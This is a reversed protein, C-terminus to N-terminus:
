PQAKAKERRMREDFQMRRAESANLPRDPLNGRTNQPTLKIPQGDDYYWKGDTDQYGGYAEAMLRYADSEQLPLNPNRDPDEALFAAFGDNTRQGWRGDASEEKLMNIRVLADQLMNLRGQDDKLKSVFYRPDTEPIAEGGKKKEGGGSLAMAGGIGGLVVAGVGATAKLAGRESNVFDKVGYYADRMKAGKQRKMAQEELVRNLNDMARAERADAEAWLADRNDRMVFRSRARTNAAKADRLEKRAALEEASQGGEIRYAKGAKRKNPKLANRDPPLVEVGPAIRVKGYGPPKPTGKGGGFGMQAPPLRNGPPKVGGRTAARVGAGAIGGTIAGGLAQAARERADVVGDGNTDRAFTGGAIAGGATGYGTASGNKVLPKPAGPPKVTPPSAKVGAWDAPPPLMGQNQNFRPAYNDWRQFQEPRAGKNVVAFEGNGPSKLLMKGSPLNAEIMSGLSNLDVGDVLALVHPGPTSNVLGVFREGIQRQVDAWEKPNQEAWDPARPPDNALSMGREQARLSAKQFDMAGTLDDAVNSPWAPSMVVADRDKFVDATVDYQRGDQTTVKAVSRSQPVSSVSASARAEGVPARPPAKPAPGPPKPGRALKNGGLKRTAGYGVGAAAAATAAREGMDVTGDGNLDPAALFGGAGSAMTALPTVGAFGADKPSPPGKRTRAKTPPKPAKSAADIKDLIAKGKGGGRLAPNSETEDLANLLAEIDDGEDVAASAKRPPGLRKPKGGTTPPTVKPLGYLGETARSLVKRSPNGFRDVLGTAVKSATLVPPLGSTALVADGALTVPWSTKDGLAGVGRNFPSQVLETANVAGRQNSFTPSGSAQEIARLNPNEVQAIKRIDDAFKKGRPGLQELLELAGEQQMRTIKAAAEEPTGRFENLFEDRISMWAVTQQRRGLKKFRRVMQATEYASRATTFAGKGFRVAEKAGYQHGYRNMAGEYGPAARKLPDLIMDRLDDYAQSMRTAKGTVPDEAADSLRRFESQLWHAGGVPDQAILQDIDVGEKKARIRTADDVYGLMMPDSMVESLESLAEAQDPSPTRRGDVAQRAHDLIPEYGKKGTERLSAIIQDERGILSGKFLNREASQTLFDQQTKRLEGITRNITARSTDKPGTEANRARGWVDLNTRVQNAVEEPFHNALDSKIFFALPVRADNLGKFRQVAGSLYGMVDADKIGASRMLRRTIKITDRDILRQQKSVAPPGAPVANLVPQAAGGGQGAGPAGAQAGRGTGQPIPAQAVPLSPAQPAPPQVPPRTPPVAAAPPPSVAATNIAGPRAGGANTPAAVPSAMNEIAKIGRPVARIAEIGVYSLPNTAAEMGAMNRDAGEPATSSGFTYAHAANEIAEGGIGRVTRSLGPVEKVATGVGRATSNIGKGPGLIYGALTGALDAGVEGATQAEPIPIRPVVDGRENLRQMQDAAGSQQVAAALREPADGEGRYYENGAIAGQVSPDLGAGYAVGVKGAMDIGSNVAGINTNVAQGFARTAFLDPREQNLELPGGPGTDKFPIPSAANMLSREERAAEEAKQAAFRDMAQTQSARQAAVIPNTQNAYERQAAQGIEVMPNVPGMGAGNSPQAPAQSVAPAQMWKPQAKQAPQESEQAGVQPAQQWRPKPSLSM